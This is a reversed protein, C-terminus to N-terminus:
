RPKPYDTNVLRIARGKRGQAMITIMNCYIIMLDISVSEEIASRM